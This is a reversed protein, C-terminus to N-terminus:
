EGKSAKYNSLAKNLEDMVSERTQIKGDKCEFIGDNALSVDLAADIVREAAKLEEVLLDNQELTTDLQDRLQEIESAAHYVDAVYQEDNSDLCDQKEVNNAENVLRTLYDDM